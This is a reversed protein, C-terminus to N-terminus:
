IKSILELAKQIKEPPLMEVMKRLTDKDNTRKFYRPWDTVNSQLRKNRKKLTRVDRVEALVQISIQFRLDLLHQGIDVIFNDNKDEVDFQLLELETLPCCFLKWERADERLGVEPEESSAMNFRFNVPTSVEAQRFVAVYASIGLPFKAARYLAQTQATWAEFPCLGKANGTDTNGTHITRSTHNPNTHCVGLMFGAHSGTVEMQHTSMRKIDVQEEREKLTKSFKLTCEIPENSHGDEFNANMPNGVSPPREMQEEPENAEPLQLNWPWIDYKEDEYKYNGDQV